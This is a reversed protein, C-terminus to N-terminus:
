QQKRLYKIELNRANMKTQDYQSILNLLANEKFLIDKRLNRKQSNNLRTYTQRLQDLEDEMSQVSQELEKSKLFAQKAADSEFDNLTYYIINDNIVFSFDRATKMSENRIRHHAHEIYENYNVGTKWSEKISSIKARSVLDQKNETEISVIEENPIFTYVIVKDEPQFRDTAFYGMNNIEDVAMMYDNAISNFPMGMQSPNLYSDNNMNYRTIFLDYGGISANGTSAYYITLGDQLVFPYNDNTMSDVPLELMKKDSWHNQLKIESYLRYNGTENKEAFYRKDRLPNEYIVQDNNNELYGSEISLFYAELFDKKLLYERISQIIKSRKRFIERSDENIILDVYRKRYKTEIDTLGHIKNLEDLKEKDIQKNPLPLLTKSLMKLSTAKLSLEGRPTRRITGTFGLIDGLDVLKLIALSEEDLNDKHSFIQIKGSEDLLDIFMGSNRLAMVRGAVSYEDNTEEGDPLQAYKSQLQSAHTDTEFSYPYPNVGMDALQALKQIRTQRIHNDTEM